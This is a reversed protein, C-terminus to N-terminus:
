RLAKTKTIVCRERIDAKDRLHKVRPAELASEIRERGQHCDIRVTATELRETKSRWIQLRIGHRL